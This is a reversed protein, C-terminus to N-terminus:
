ISFYRANAQSHTRSRVSPLRSSEPGCEPAGRIWCIGLTRADLIGHEFCGETRCDVGCIARADSTGRVLWRCIRESTSLWDNPSSGPIAPAYQSYPPCYQHHSALRCGPWVNSRRAHAVALDPSALQLFLRYGDGMELRGM